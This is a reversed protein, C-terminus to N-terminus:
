PQVESPQDPLRNMLPIQQRSAAILLERAANSHPILKVCRRALAVNMTRWIELAGDTDDALACVKDAQSPERKPAQSWRKKM